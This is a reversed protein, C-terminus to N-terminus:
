LFLNLDKLNTMLWYRPIYIQTCQSTGHIKRWRPGTTAQSPTSRQQNPSRHSWLWQVIVLQAPIAIMVELSLFDCCDEVWSKFAYFVKVWIPFDMTVDLSSVDEDIVTSLGFKCIEPHWGLKDMCICIFFRLNSSGKPHWWFDDGLVLVVLQSINPRESDSRYLQCLAFRRKAVDM